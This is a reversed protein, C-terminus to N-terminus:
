NSRSYYCNQKTTTGGEGLCKQANLQRLQELKFLDPIVSRSRSVQRPGSTHTRTWAERHWSHHALAEQAWGAWSGVGLTGIDQMAM